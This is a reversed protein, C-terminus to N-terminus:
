GQGMNGLQGKMARALIEIGHNDRIVQLIRPNKALRGLAIAANKATQGKQHHAIALLPPVVPQVALVALCREEKACEGICLAANGQLSVPAIAHCTHARPCVLAAHATPSTRVHVQLSLDPRALLKVLAPLGGGDCIITAVEKRGACATLIRM